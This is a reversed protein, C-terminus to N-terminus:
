AAWAGAIDAEITPSVGVFPNKSWAAGPPLIVKLHVRVSTGPAIEGTPMATGTLNIEGQPLASALKQMGVSFREDLSEIRDHLAAFEKRMEEAKDAEKTVDEVQVPKAKEAEAVLQQMSSAFEEALKIQSRSM